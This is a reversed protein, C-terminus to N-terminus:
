ILAISRNRVPVPVGEFVTRIIFFRDIIVTVSRRKPGTPKREM